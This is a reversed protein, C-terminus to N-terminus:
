SKRKYDYYEVIYGCGLRGSFDRQLQYCELNSKIPKQSHFYMLNMTQPEFVELLHQVISSSSTNGCDDTLVYNTEFSIYPANANPTVHVTYYWPGQTANLSYGMPDFVHDDITFGPLQQELACMARLEQKTTNQSGRRFLADAKKGLGHMLVETTIDLPDPRYDKGLYFLSIHHGAPSGLCVSEGDVYTRLQAVDQEFTTPQKEPFHEDKREYSLFLLDAAPISELLPLIADVLTTQGCTIMIIRSDFVFLSSESLLYADCYENQIKSLVTAKAKKVIEHWFPEGKKRLSGFQPRVHFEVKKEPGEFDM